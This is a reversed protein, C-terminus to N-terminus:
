ASRRPAEAFALAALVGVDITVFAFWGWTDHGAFQLLGHGASALGFVLGLGRAMTAARAPTIAVCILTGLALMPIHAMGLAMPIPITYLLFRELATGGTGAYTPFKALVATLGAGLISLGWYLAIRSM